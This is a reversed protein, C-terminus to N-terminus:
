DRFYPERTYVKDLVDAIDDNYRCAIIVYDYKEFPVLEMEKIKREKADKKTIEELGLDLTIDATWDAIMDMDWEGSHTNDKINIARLEAETYGILRKCLVVPNDERERLISARQNGAIINDEEDILFIGFDGLRELSEALEERKKRKIKIPKYENM